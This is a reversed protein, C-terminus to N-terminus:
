CLVTFRDVGLRLQVFDPPDGVTPCVFFTSRFVCEIPAPIRRSDCRGRRLVRVDDRVAHLAADEMM